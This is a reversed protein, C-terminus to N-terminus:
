ITTVIETPTVQIWDNSISELIIDTMKDLRVCAILQCLRLWEFKSIALWSAYDWDNSSQFPWDVPMIEIMQVKFLGILQCLRLWKFKSVALWSAYDWDNSSQFPWDVPMTEFWKFKSSVALLSAYCLRLWKFKSIALWSVYNEWDNM